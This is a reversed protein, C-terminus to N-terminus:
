RRHSQFAMRVCSDYMFGGNIDMIDM